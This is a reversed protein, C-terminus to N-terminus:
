LLRVFSNGIWLSLCLLSWAQVHPFLLYEALPFWHLSFKVPAHPFVFDWWDMEGPLMKSNCVWEPPVHDCIPASVNSKSDWFNMPVENCCTAWQHPPGAPDDGTTTCRHTSGEERCQLPPHLHLRAVFIGEPWVIWCVHMQNPEVSLEAVVREMQESPPQGVSRSAVQGVRLHLSELAKALPVMQKGPRASTWMKPPSVWTNSHGNGGMPLITCSVNQACQRHLQLRVHIKHALLSHGQPPVNPPLQPCIKM